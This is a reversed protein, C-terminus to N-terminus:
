CTPHTCNNPLKLMRQCQREKPNSHTTKITQLVSGHTASSCRIHSNHGLTMEYLLFNCISLIVWSFILGYLIAHMIKYM